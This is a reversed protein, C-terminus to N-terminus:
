EHLLVLCTCQRVVSDGSDGLTKPVQPCTQPVRLGLALLAQLGIKCVTGMDGLFFLRNPHQSASKGHDTAPNPLTEGIPPPM